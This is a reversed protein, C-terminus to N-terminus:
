AKRSRSSAVVTGVVLAIAGVAALVIGVGVSTYDPAVFHQTYQAYTHVPLTPLPGSFVTSARDISAKSVLAIMVGVVLAVVGVALLLVVIPKRRPSVGGPIPRPGGGLPADTM